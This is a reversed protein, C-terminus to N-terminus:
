KRQKDETMPRFPSKFSTLHSGHLLFAQEAM